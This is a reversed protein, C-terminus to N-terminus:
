SDFEGLGGTGWLMEPLLNIEAGCKRCANDRAPGEYGCSCEVYYEYRLIHYPSKARQKARGRRCVDRFPRFILNAWIPDHSMEEINPDM